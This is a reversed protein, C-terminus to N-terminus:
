TIGTPTRFVGQNEARRRPWASRSEIPPRDADQNPSGSSQKNSKEQHKSKPLEEPLYWRVYNLVEGGLDQFTTRRDTVFEGVQSGDQQNCALEVGQSLAHRRDLATANAASPTPQACMTVQVHRTSEQQQCV